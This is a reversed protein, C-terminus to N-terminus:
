EKTTAAKQAEKLEAVLAAETSENKNFVSKHQTEVHERLENLQKRGFQQGCWVCNIQPGTQGAVMQVVADSADEPTVVPDVNDPREAELKVGNWIDGNPLQVANGTFQIATTRM